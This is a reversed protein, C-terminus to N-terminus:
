SAFVESTLKTLSTSCALTDRFQTKVISTWLFLAHMVDQAQYVRRRLVCSKPGDRHDAAIPCCTCEVAHVCWNTQSQVIVPRKPRGWQTLPGTLEALRDPIDWKNVIFPSFSTVQDGKQLRNSFTYSFMHQLVMERAPHNAKTEMELISNDMSTQLAKAEDESLEMQILTSASVIDAVASGRQHFTHGGMPVHDKYFLDALAIRFSQQTQYGFQRKLWGEFQKLEGPEYKAEEADHCVLEEAWACWFVRSAMPIFGYVAQGALSDSDTRKAMQTRQTRQEYNLSKFHQDAAQVVTEDLSHSLVFVILYAVQEFITLPVGPIGTKRRCQAKLTDYLRICDLAELNLDPSPPHTAMHQYCLAVFWTEALTMGGHEENWQVRQSAWRKVLQERNVLVKSELATDPDQCIHMECLVRLEKAQEEEKLPLFKVEPKSM